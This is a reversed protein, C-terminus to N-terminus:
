AALQSAAKVKEKLDQYIIVMHENHNQEATILGLEIIAVHPDLGAAEALAVMGEASPRSKKSRWFSCATGKYGLFRDLERDFHLSQASKAADIYEDLTM